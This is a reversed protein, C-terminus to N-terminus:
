SKVTFIQIEFKVTFDLNSHKILVKMQELLAAWLKLMKNKSTQKRQVKISFATRIFQQKRRM